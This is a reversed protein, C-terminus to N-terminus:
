CEEIGANQKASNQLLCQRSKIQNQTRTVTIVQDEHIKIWAGSKPRIQEIQQGGKGLIPGALDKPTTVHSLMNVLIVVHAVAAQMTVIRDSGGQSECGNAM